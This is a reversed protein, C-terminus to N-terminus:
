KLVSYVHILSAMAWSMVRESQHLSKYHYLLEEMSFIIIEDAVDFKESYYFPTHYKDSNCGERDSIHWAKTQPKQQLRSMFLKDIETWKRQWLKWFAECKALSSMDNGEEKSVWDIFRFGTQHYLIDYDTLSMATLALLEQKVEEAKPVKITATRM